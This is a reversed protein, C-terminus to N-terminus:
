SRSHSLVHSAYSATEALKAKMWSIQLRQNSNPELFIMTRSDGSTDM